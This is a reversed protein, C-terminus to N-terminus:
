VIHIVINEVQDYGMKELNKLILDLLKVSKESSKFQTVILERALFTYGELHDAFHRVLLKEKSINKVYKEVNELEKEIKTPDELLSQLENEM